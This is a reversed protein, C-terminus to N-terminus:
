ARNKRFTLTAFTYNCGAYTFDPHPCEWDPKDVLSCDPLLRMLRESLDRQTYFRYDEPPIQDGSKYQDNYDCTLIAVGGPSLLEGIQTIFLEDDKVHEIVSTSFIIDYSGKKTSPKEMFTNLDYNLIPDIEDMRHGFERLAVFATDDYSGICLIKPSEYHRVFEGVTDLVFAQQINAEPIKRAMMEPLLDFLQDISSKYQKRAVDDLIRNYTKTGSVLTQKPTTNHSVLKTTIGSGLAPVWSDPHHIPETKKIIRRIRKRLRAITSTPIRSLVSDIIREYDWILNAENWENAYTAIPDFGNEIIQSLSSHEICISPVVSHVHRFMASKTVAVPRQIALAQDIASSIGRGTGGEYLFANITNESLFHLVDEQSLFDHSISLKIGPKVILRECQKAIAKANIGDEDGFKAFPINLRILAIDFEHQVALILREFGKGATAFGFSGVTIIEPSEYKNEFKPILRGTKFVIPNKLLLTPDAAIHYDFFSDDASDALEQTVEHIIDIHPVNIKRIVKKELWPLTTQYYNYIIASPQYNAVARYYEDSNSCEAYEFVYKKSHRLTKSINLGFQHV